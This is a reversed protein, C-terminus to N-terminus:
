HKVVIKGALSPVGELAEITQKMLLRPDAVADPHAYPLLGGSKVPQLRATASGFKVRFSKGDYILENVQDYGIQTNKSDSQLLSDMTANRMQENQRKRELEGAQVALTVGVFGPSVISVLGVMVLRKDTFFIRAQALKQSRGWDFGWHVDAEPWVMLIQEKV